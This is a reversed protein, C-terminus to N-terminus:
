NEAKRRAVLVIAAGVLLMGGVIYFITTGIGGTSPLETGTANAVEAVTNNAANVTVDTDGVKNYGKPAQLEVLVYDSDADVGWIVINGSAVTVFDSVLSGDAVTAVENNAAVHTSATGTETDDAVRYNEADIKRLNIVTNGKKLQFIADALIDKTTDATAYKLVEFKHTTTETHDETSSTGDGFSVTTTNTQPDIAPNGQDDTVIAAANVEATYVIYLNQSASATAAFTNPIVITFTDGTDAQDGTKIQAATYETELGADTYVKISSANLTLGDEMTDHIKVNISRPSVTTVSKFEVTDGVQADNTKGYENTSDEKVTKVITDGENKENITVNGPTTDIMARTGLTSTILYYGDGTTLQVSTADDEVVKTDAATM